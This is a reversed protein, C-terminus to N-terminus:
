SSLRNNIFTYFTGLNNSDLIKEERDMDFKQIASNIEITLIRYKSKLEANNDTKMVRWFARTKSILKRIEENYQRSTYKQLAYGKRRSVFMHIMQWM